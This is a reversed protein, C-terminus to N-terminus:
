TVFALLTQLAQRYRSRHGKLSSCVQNLPLSVHLNTYKNKVEHTTERVVFVYSREDDAGHGVNTEIGKEDFIRTTSQRRNSSIGGASLRQKNHIGHREGSVNHYNRLDTEQRVPIVEALSGLDLGIESFRDKNILVEEKSYADDHIRLTCIKQLREFRPTKSIKTQNSHRVSQSTSSHALRSTSGDHPM